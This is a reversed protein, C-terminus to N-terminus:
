APTKRRSAAVRAILESASHNKADGVIAVRGGLKRVLEAEPVSSATYDTGKAHIDPRLITIVQGVDDEAFGLVHDVCGLAAIIEMREVQTVVPRDPGKLRRVSDDSNVAVVLIDGLEAAAQLYRVHGVHLLDFAGNALVLREGRQRAQELLPVLEAATSFIAM